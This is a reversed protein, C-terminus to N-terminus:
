IIIPFTIGYKNREKSSIVMIRKSALYTKIIGIFPLKINNIKSLRIKTNVAKDSPIKIEVTDGLWCVARIADRPPKINGV